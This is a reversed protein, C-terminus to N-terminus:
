HISAVPHNNGLVDAGLPVPMPAEPRPRTAWVPGDFGLQLGWGKMFGDRIASCGPSSDIARQSAHDKICSAAM